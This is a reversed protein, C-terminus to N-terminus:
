NAHTFVTDGSRQEHPERVAHYGTETVWYWWMKGEGHAVRNAAGCAVLGEWTENRGNSAYRNRYAIKNQDFGLAHRLLSREDNTLPRM